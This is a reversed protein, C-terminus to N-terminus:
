PRAKGEIVALLRDPPLYGPVVGGHELFITPTGSVGVMRGLAYHEQVPNDCRRSEVPQGLKADTMAQQRDEACWVSVAKDYSASPVGARPYALYRVRIGLRNYWGMERHMQVCYPCDIDTFVTVTHPADAPGFSIMSGAGLSEIAGLRAESRAGETLNDRSAIEVVDGRVLHRGDASVYVVHPGVLVEYLGEIPSPTIRDPEVGVLDRVADRVAEPAANEAGVSPPLFCLTALALAPLRM